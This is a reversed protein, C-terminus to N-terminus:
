SDALLSQSTKWKGKFDSQALLALGGEGTQTSHQPVEPGQSSGLTLPGGPGEGIRGAGACSVPLVGEAAAAPPGAGLPSFWAPSAPWSPGPAPLARDLIRRAKYIPLHDGLVM